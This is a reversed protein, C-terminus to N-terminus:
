TRPGGGRWATPSAAFGILLGILLPILVLGAVGLDLYFDALFSYTNPLLAQDPNPKIVEQPAFSSDIFKLLSFFIYFTHELPERDLGAPYYGDLLAQFASLNGATYGFLAVGVPFRVRTLAVLLVVSVALLAGVGALLPM